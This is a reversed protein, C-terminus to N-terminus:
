ESIRKASFLYFVYGMDDVEIFTINKPTTYVTAQTGNITKSTIKKSIDILAEAKKLKNPNEEDVTWWTKASIYKKIFNVLDKDEGDSIDMMEEASTHVSCVFTISKAENIEVSDEMGLSTKIQNELKHELSNAELAETLSFYDM